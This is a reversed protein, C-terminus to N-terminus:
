LSKRNTSTRYSYIAQAVSEVFSTVQASTMSPPIKVLGASVFNNVAAALSSNVETWNVTGNTTATVVYSDIMRLSVGPTFLSLVDNNDNMAGTVDLTFWQMDQLNAGSPINALNDSVAASVIQQVALDQAALNASGDANTPPLADAVASSLGVLVIYTHHTQLIDNVAVGYTEFQALSMGYRPQTIKTAVANFVFCEITDAQSATCNSPKQAHAPSPFAMTSLILVLAAFVIKRFRYM